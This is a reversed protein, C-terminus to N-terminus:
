LRKSAKNLVRVSVWTKRVRADTLGEVTVRAGKVTLARHHHISVLRQEKVFRCKFQKPCVRFKRNKTNQSKKTQFKKPKNVERHLVIVQRTQRRLETNLLTKVGHVFYTSSPM